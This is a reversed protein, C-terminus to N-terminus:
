VLERMKRDHDPCWLQAAAQEDSLYRPGERGVRWGRGRSKELVEGAACVVATGPLARSLFTSAGDLRDRGVHVLCCGEHLMGYEAGLMVSV